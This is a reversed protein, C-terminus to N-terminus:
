NKLLITCHDINDFVKSLDLFLSLPMKGKDTDLQITDVLALETSHNESAM